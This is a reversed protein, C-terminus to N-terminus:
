LRKTEVVRGVVMTMRRTLGMMWFLCKAITGEMETVSEARVEESNSDTEIRGSESPKDKRGKKRKELRPKMSSIVEGWGM